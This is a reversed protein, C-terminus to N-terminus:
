LNVGYAPNNTQTTQQLKVGYAATIEAKAHHNIPKTPTDPVTKQPPEPDKRPPCAATEAYSKVLEISCDANCPVTVVSLELWEWEKFHLGWSKPIDDVVLGRFGVSLGNVLGSKISQWAEDIRNKLTGQDAINAIEATIEIGDQTIEAAIVKGIPQSHSHQWLLPLPLAFKAGSPELIDDARDPTATSAVGKITRKEEDVSKITLLGYAKNSM